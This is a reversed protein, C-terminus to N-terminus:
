STIGTASARRSNSYGVRTGISFNQFVKHDLNLRASIRRFENEELMGKQNTYGVSTYYTTKETGGSFNVTNSHSFGTRYVYDYWDTDVPANNADLTPRFGEVNNGPQGLAIRNANLNRVAENKIEIYQEANLVDYLRVPESWGAWSDLSVRSQGKKGKKTTVLIVGGAARSGYIASASADKLV